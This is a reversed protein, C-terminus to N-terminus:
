ARQGEPPERLAVEPLVQEVQRASHRQGARNIAQPEVGAAGGLIPLLQNDERRLRYSGQDEIFSQAGYLGMYSDVLEAYAAYRAEGDAPADAMVQGEDDSALALSAAAPIYLAAAGALCLGARILVRRGCKFM